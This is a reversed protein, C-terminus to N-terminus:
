AQKQKLWIVNEEKQYQVKQLIEQAIEDITRGNTYIIHKALLKNTKSRIFIENMEKYSEIVPFKLPDKQYRKYLRENLTTISTKVSKSPLILFVNPCRKFIAALEQLRFLEECHTDTAGLDIIGHFEELINNLEKPGFFDKAYKILAPFGKTRLLKTSEYLNYGNRHRYYWKLKDVPHNHMGTIESLREAVSSKGTALPGILIISMVNGKM